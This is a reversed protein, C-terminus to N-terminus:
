RRVPRDAVMELVDGTAKLWDGDFHYGRDDIYVSAVPKNGHDFLGEGWIADVPLNHQECMQRIFGPNNCSHVIVKYGRSHVEDLFDRFGEAPGQKGNDWLTHDFDVSIWQGKSM